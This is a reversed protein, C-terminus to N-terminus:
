FIREGRVYKRHVDTQNALYIMREFRRELSDGALSFRSDDVLLVDAEFGADFAGVDGFFAGGGRTAMAFAEAATLAPRSDDALRWRLKSVDIAERMVDFLDLSHGGSVDSGLGINLGEDLYRRVPAAGSRMNTNSTPCHAVFTGTGKIRDIEGDDLYVCHAMVSQPGLLGAREYVETYSGSDPCLQRVWSIESLNESLHSQVPLKRERALDGIGALLEDSCAPVFRPTLVPRARTFRDAADLWRRTAALSTETDPEVYYAPSNRDMNVKGVLTLLGSHELLEMLLLTADDHITAFVCARTTPSRRLAYTFSEYAAAAYAESEFRSETPFTLRDLWDLLEMDLGLGVNEYQSAHLHLDVFGPVILGRCTEAPLGRYREPLAPFVGACRGDEVVLCANENLSLSGNAATYVIDGLLAFGNM